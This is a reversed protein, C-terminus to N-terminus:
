MTTNLTPKQRYIKNVVDLYSVLVLLIHDNEYYAVPQSMKIVMEWFPIM